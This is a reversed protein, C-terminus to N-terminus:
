KPDVNEPIPFTEQSNERIFAYMQNSALVFTEYFQQGTIRDADKWDLHNYKVLNVNHMSVTATGDLRFSLFITKENEPDVGAYWSHSEVDKYYFDMRDNTPKFQM